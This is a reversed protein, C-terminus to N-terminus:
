AAKRRGLWHFGYLSATLLLPGVIVVYTTLPFRGWAVVLYGIGMLACAITGILPRRWALLATGLVLLSPILHIVLNILIEGWESFDSFVDLAFLAFFLAM